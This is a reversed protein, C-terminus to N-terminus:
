AKKRLEEIRKVMHLMEEESLPAAGNKFTRGSEMIDKPRYHRAVFSGVDDSLEHSYIFSDCARVVRENVGDVFERAVPRHDMPAAPSAIRRGDLTLDLAVPMLINGGSDMSCPNDSTLFGDADTAQLVTWKYSHELDRRVKPWLKAVRDLVDHTNAYGMFLGRLKRGEFEVEKVSANECNLIRALHEMASPTRLLQASVFWFLNDLLAADANGNKLGNRVGPWKQEITMSWHKDLPHRAYFDPECAVYDNINLKKGDKCGPRYVALAGGKWGRRYESTFGRLYAKPVYHDKGM